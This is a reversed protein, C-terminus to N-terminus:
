SGALVFDEQLHQLTYNVEGNLIGVCVQDVFTLLKAKSELHALDFLPWKAEIAMISQVLTSRGKGGFAILAFDQFNKILEM